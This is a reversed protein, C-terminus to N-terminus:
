SWSRTYLAHLSDIIIERHYPPVSAAVCYFGSSARLRMYGHLIDSTTGM